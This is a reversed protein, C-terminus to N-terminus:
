MVTTAVVQVVFGIVIAVALPVAFRLFRRLAERGPVRGRARLAHRLYPEAAMVVVLMVLGVVLTTIQMALSSTYQAQVNYGSGYSAALVFFVAKRWVTFVIWALVIIAAFLGYVILYDTLRPRPKQAM